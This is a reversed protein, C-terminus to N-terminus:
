WFFLKKVIEVTKPSHYSVQLTSAALTVTALGVVSLLDNKSFLASAVVAVILGKGPDGSYVQKGKGGNSKSFPSIVIPIDGDKTRVSVSCSQIFKVANELNSIAGYVDM